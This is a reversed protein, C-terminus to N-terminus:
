GEQTVDATFTLDSYSLHFTRTAKLCEDRLADDRRQREGAASDLGLVLAGGHVSVGIVHWVPELNSCSM